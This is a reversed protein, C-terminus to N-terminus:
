AVGAFIMPRKLRKPKRAIPMDMSVRIRDRRAMYRALESTSARRNRADHVLDEACALSCLKVPSLQGFVDSGCWECWARPPAPVNVPPAQSTLKRMRDREKIAVRRLARVSGAPNDARDVAFHYRATENGRRGDPEVPEIRLAGFCGVGPFNSKQM